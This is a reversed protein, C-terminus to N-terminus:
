AQLLWRFLLIYVLFLSFICFIFVLRDWLFQSKENLPPSSAHCHKFGPLCVVLKDPDGDAMSLTQVADQHFTASGSVGQAVVTCVRGLELAVGPVKVVRSNNTKSRWSWMGAGGPSIATMTRLQTSSLVSNSKSFKAHINHWQSGHLFTTLDFGHLKSNQQSYHHEFIKTM